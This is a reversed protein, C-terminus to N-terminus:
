PGKGRAYVERTDATYVAKSGLEIRIAIVFGVAHTKEIQLVTQQHGRQYLCPQKYRPQTLTTKWHKQQLSASPRASLTWQSAFLLSTQLYVTEDDNVGLLTSLKHHPQCLAYRHTDPTFLLHHHLKCYVYACATKSESGTHVRPSGDGPTKGHAKQLVPHPSDNSRPGEKCRGIGGVPTANKCKLTGCQRPDQHQWQNRHAASCPLGVM